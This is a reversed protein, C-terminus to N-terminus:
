LDQKPRPFGSFEIGRDGDPYVPQDAPDIRDVRLSELEVGVAVLLDISRRIARQRDRITLSRICSSHHDRCGSHKGSSGHDLPRVGQQAVWPM